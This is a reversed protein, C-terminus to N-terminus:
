MASLQLTPNNKFRKSNKVKNILLRFEKDKKPSTIGIINFFLSYNEFSNINFYYRLKGRKKYFKIPNSNINLDKLMQKIDDLIDIRDQHLRLTYNQSNISCEDDYFARILGTKFTTNKDKIEKTIKKNKGEAFKGCISYLIDSCIKPYFLGVQHGEPVDNLNNARRMWRTKENFAKKEQIWIRPEIGFLSKMNIRFEKLLVIDSNSYFVSHFRKDISGDGLIHGVICGIKEDILLPLKPYIEGSRIGAKMSILNKEVDQWTYNSLNIIKILKSLPVTRYGKSWGYITLSSKKIENIPCGIKDAFEKSRYPSISKSANNLLKNLFKLNLKIHATSLQQTLDEIQVENKM